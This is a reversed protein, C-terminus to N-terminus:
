DEGYGREADEKSSIGAAELLSKVRDVLTRPAGPAPYTIAYAESPFGYYDYLMPPAPSRRAHM